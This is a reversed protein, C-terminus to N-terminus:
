RKTGIIDIGTCLLHPCLRKLAPYKGVYLTRTPEIGSSALLWELERHTFYHLHQGDWGQKKNFPFENAGTRPVRGLTLHLIHRFFAVNPVAVLCTGGSKLTRALEGVLGFVDFVHELVNTCLISDFYNDPFPLPESDVDHVLFTVRPMTRWIDDYRAIDLGFAEDYNEAVLALQHGGQCGIDLIRAGPKLHPRAADMLDKCPAFYPEYARDKWAEMRDATTEYYDRPKM